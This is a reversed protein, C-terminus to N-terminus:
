VRTLAIGLLGLEGIQAVAPAKRREVSQQFSLFGVGEERLQDSVLNLARSVGPFM